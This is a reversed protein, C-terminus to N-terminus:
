AAASNTAACIRSPPPVAIHTCASTDSSAATSNINERISASSPRSVANTFLAPTTSMAERTSAILTARSRRMNSMLTSPLKMQARSATSRMLVRCPPAPPQM